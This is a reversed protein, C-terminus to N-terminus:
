STALFRAAYLGPMARLRVSSSTRCSPSSTRRWEVQELRRDVVVARHGVVVPPADGGLGAQGLGEDVADGREVVVQRLRAARPVDAGAGARRTPRGPEVRVDVLELAPEAHPHPLPGVVARDREPLRDAEAEAVRAGGDAVAVDDVGAGARHRAHEGALRAGAGSGSTRLVSSSGTSSRGPSKEPRRAASAPRRLLPEVRDLRRVEAAAAARAERGARLPVEGAARGAAVFTTTTM